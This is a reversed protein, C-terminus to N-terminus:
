IERVARGVYLALKRDVGGGRPRFPGLVRGPRLEAHVGASLLAIFANMDAENRRRKKDDTAVGVFEHVLFVATQCQCEAASMLAGVCGTLLQYRLHDIRPVANYPRAFLAQCLNDLRDPIKSNPSTANALQRDLTPGLEEDAKAEVSVTVAGGSCVGSLLLDTNRTEGKYDDLAVAHEPWGEDFRVQGIDGCSALTALIEPPTVPEGAQPFWARALEKASRGDVWQKERGKPPALRFWDDVSRIIENNKSIRM